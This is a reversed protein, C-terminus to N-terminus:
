ESLVEQVVHTSMDHVKLGVGLRELVVPAVVVLEHLGPFLNVGVLQLPVVGLLLVDLTHLLLYCLITFLILM